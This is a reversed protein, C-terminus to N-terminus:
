GLTVTEVMYRVNISNNLGQEYRRIVFVLYRGLDSSIVRDIEYSLVAPRVIKPHGVVYANTESGKKTTLDIFFSSGAGRHLTQQLTITYEKQTQFDRFRLTREPMPLASQNITASEQMISRAYILRGRNLFNIKHQKRQPALRELLEFLAGDLTDGPQPWTSHILEHRGDPLYSNTTVDVFMVQAYTKSTEENFGYQGFLFRKNNDSFGLNVFIAADGAFLPTLGSLSIFLMWILRIKM